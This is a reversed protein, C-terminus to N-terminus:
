QVERDFEHLYTVKQIRDFNLNTHKLVAEKHTYILKKMNATTGTLRSIERHAPPRSKSGMVRSYVQKGLLTRQLVKNSMELDFPNGVSIAGKLPCNAGEEGV